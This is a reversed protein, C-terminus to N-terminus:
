ANEGREKSGVPEGTDRDFSCKCRPCFRVADRYTKWLRCGCFPCRSEDTFQVPRNRM